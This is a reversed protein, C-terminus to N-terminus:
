SLTRRVLGMEVFPRLHTTKMIRKGGCDAQQPRGLPRLVGHHERPEHKASLDILWTRNPIGHECDGGETKGTARAVDEVVENIAVAIAQVRRFPVPRNGAAVHRWTM